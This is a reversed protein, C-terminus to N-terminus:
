QPAGSVRAVAAPNGPPGTAPARPGAPPALVLGGVPPKLATLSVVEIIASL